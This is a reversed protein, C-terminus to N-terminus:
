CTILHLFSKTGKQSNGKVTCIQHISEKKETKPTQNFIGYCLQSLMKVGFLVFFYLKKM